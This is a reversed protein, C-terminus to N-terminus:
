SATVQGNEDPNGSPSSSKPRIKLVPVVVPVPIKSKKFFWDQFKVPETRPL